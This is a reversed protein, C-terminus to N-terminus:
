QRRLERAFTVSLAVRLKDWAALWQGDDANVLSLRVELVDQDWKRLDQVVLVPPEALGQEGPDPPALVLTIAQPTGPAIEVQTVPGTFLQWQGDGLKAPLTLRKVEGTAGDAAGSAPPTHLVIPQGAFAQTPLLLSVHLGDLTLGETPGLLYDASLGDTAFELREAFRIAGGDTDPVPLTGSVLRTRGGDAATATAKSASQDVHKWDPGHANLSLTALPQDGSSITVTGQPSVAATLTDQAGASSSGLVVLVPSALLLYVARSRLVHRPMPVV